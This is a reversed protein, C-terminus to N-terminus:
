SKISLLLMSMQDQDTNQDQDMFVCVYACWAFFFSIELQSATLDPDISSNSAQILM